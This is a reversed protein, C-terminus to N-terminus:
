CSFTTRGSSEAPINYTESVTYSQNMALGGTHVVQGLYLDTSVDLFQDKSLYINDLWTGQRPPVDGTGANTVTYSMTFGQGIVAQAPAVVQSVILNPLNAAGVVLPAVSINNDENAFEHVAGM